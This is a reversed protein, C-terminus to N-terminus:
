CNVAPRRMIVAGFMLFLTGFTVIWRSGSSPFAHWIMFTGVIALIVFFVFTKLASRKSLTDQASFIASIIAIFLLWQPNWFFTVFGPRWAEFLLVAIYGLVSVWSVTKLIIIRM